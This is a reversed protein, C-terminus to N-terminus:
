KKKEDMIKQVMEVIVSIPIPKRLLEDRGGVSIFELQSRALEDTHGSMLVVETEPSISKIEKCLEVGNAYPMVLDTFVMDFKIKKAIQIAEIPSSSTEVFFGKKELVKKFTLLISKEDDIVLVKGLCKDKASTDSDSKLESSRLLDQKSEKSSGIKETHNKKDVNNKEKELTIM